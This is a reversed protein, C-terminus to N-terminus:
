RAFGETVTDLGGGYLGMELIFTDFGLTLEGFTLTFEGLELNM